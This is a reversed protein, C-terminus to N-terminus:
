KNEKNSKYPNHVNALFVIILRLKCIMNTTSLPLILNPNM